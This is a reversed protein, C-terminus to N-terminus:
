AVNDSVCARRQVTLTLYHWFLLSSATEDRLSSLAIGRSRTAPYPNRPNVEFGALEWTAWSSTIAVQLAPTQKNAADPDHGYGAPEDVPLGARSLLGPDAAVRCYGCFALSRSKTCGTIDTAVPLNCAAESQSPAHQAGAAM